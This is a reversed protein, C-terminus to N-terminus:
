TIENLQFIEEVIKQIVINDLKLCISQIKNKTAYDNENLHLADNYLPQLLFFNEPVDIRKEIAYNLKKITTHTNIYQRKDEDNSLWNYVIKEIKVRIACVIKLPNYSNGNLFENVEKNIETYFLKSNYCYENTIVQKNSEDLHFVEPHFHLYYKELNDSLDKYNTKNGRIKLLNVMDNDIKYAYTKLYHIKNKNFYYNKFLAPDLHTLIIPFLIKECKKCDEILKSLYYQVVLMNSGDLYDFIEDIILIGVDKKFESKFKALHLIFSLVDREGNSMKNASLFEVILKNNKEKTKLMRGTTNFMQLKEDIDNRYEKYILYNKSKKINSHQAKVVEIIQIVTLILDVEKDSNPPLEKLQRAFDIVEALLPEDTIIKIDDSTIQNKMDAATGIDSFQQIFTKIAKQPKIQKSCKKLIELKECFLELNDVNNFIDAINLFIKGKKEYIVKIDNLKYEVEIKQPINELFILKEVDLRASKSQFGGYSRSTSKAYVPNKIVYTDAINSIENKNSDATLIKKGHNDLKCELELSPLNKSNGEFFDENDLEIKNTKLAKFATAITSKGFGNPAVFLNPCNAHLDNFKLNWKNKGKINVIEIRQINNM